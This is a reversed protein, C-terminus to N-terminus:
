EVNSEGFGWRDVVTVRWELDYSVRLLQEDRKQVAGKVVRRRILYWHTFGTQRPRYIRPEYLPRVEDPEGLLGRVQSVTMGRRVEGYNNVIQAKRRESAVYHYSLDSTPRASNGCCSSAGFVALM